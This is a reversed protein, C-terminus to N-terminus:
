HRKISNDFLDKVSNRKIGIQLILSMVSIITIAIVMPFASATLFYSIILTVIASLAMRL